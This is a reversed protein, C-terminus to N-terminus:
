AAALTAQMIPSGPRGVPFARLDWPASLLLLCGHELGNGCRENGNGNEGRRRKGARRALGRLSRHVLGCLRRDDLSIAFRLRQVGIGSHIAMLLMIPMKALVLVDAQVLRMRLVNRDLMHRRGGFAASGSEGPARKAGMARRASQSHCVLGRAM